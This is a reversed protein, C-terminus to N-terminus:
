TTLNFSIIVYTAEQVYFLSFLLSRMCSDMSFFLLNNDCCSNKCFCYKISYIVLGKFSSLHRISYTEQYEFGDFSHIYFCFNMSTTGTVFTMSINKLLINSKVIILHIVNAFPITRGSTCECDKSHNNCFKNRYSCWTSSNCTPKLDASLVTQIVSLYLVLLVVM